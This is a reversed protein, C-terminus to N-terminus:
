SESLQQVTPLCIYIGFAASAPVAPIELEQTIHGRRTQIAVIDCRTRSPNCTLSFDVCQGVGKPIIYVTATYVAFVVLVLQADKIM